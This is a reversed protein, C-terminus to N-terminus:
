VERFTLDSLQYEIIDGAENVMQADNVAVPEALFTVDSKTRTDYITVFVLGNSCAEIIASTVNYDTPNLEVTVIRKQRIFDVHTIADMTMKDQLGKVPYYSRSIGGERVHASFDVGNIRFTEKTM